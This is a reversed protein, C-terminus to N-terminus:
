LRTHGCVDLAYEYDETFKYEKRLTGPCKPDEARTQIENTALLRDKEEKEKKKEEKLEKL